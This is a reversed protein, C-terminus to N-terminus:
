PIMNSFDLYTICRVRFVLQIFNRLRCIFIGSRVAETPSLYYYDLTGTYFCLPNGWTLTCLFFMNEKLAPCMYTGHTRWTAMKLPELPQSMFKCVHKKKQEVQQMLNLSAQLNLKLYAKVWKCELRNRPNMDKRQEPLVECHYPAYPCQIILLSANLAADSYKALNFLTCFYISQWHDWDTAASRRWYTLFKWTRTAKLTFIHVSM